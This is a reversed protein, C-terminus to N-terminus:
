LRIFCRVSQKSQTTRAQAAHVPDASAWSLGNESGRAAEDVYYVGASFASPALCLCIALALCMTNILLPLRCLKQCVAWDELRRYTEM